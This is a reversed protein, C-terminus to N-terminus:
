IGYLQSEFKKAMENVEPFVNPYARADEMMAKYYCITSRDRNMASAIEVETFGERYLAYAVVIRAPMRRAHKRHSLDVGDGENCLRMAEAMEEYRELVTDGCRASKSAQRKM